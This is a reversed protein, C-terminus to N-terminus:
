LTLGWTQLVERSGYVNSQKLMTAGMARAVRRSKKNRRDIELNVQQLQPDTWVENRAYDVLYKTATGIIGQGEARKDLFYSLFATNGNRAHLGVGGVMSNSNADIIFSQLRTGRSTENYLDEIREQAPWVGLNYAWPLYDAFHQNRQVLDYLLYGDTPELTRMFMGEPLTETHM